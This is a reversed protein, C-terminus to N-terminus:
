QTLGIRSVSCLCSRGPIALRAVLFDKGKPLPIQSGLQPSIESAPLCIRTASRSAPSSRVWGLGNVRSCTKRIRPRRGALGGGRGEGQGIRM